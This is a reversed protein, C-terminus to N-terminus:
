LTVRTRMRILVSSYHGSRHQFDLGHKKKYSRSELAIYGRYKGVHVIFIRTVGSLMFKFFAQLSCIMLEHRRQSARFFM